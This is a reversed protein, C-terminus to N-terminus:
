ALLCALLGDLWFFIIIIITTTAIFVTRKSKQNKGTGDGM